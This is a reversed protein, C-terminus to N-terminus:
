PKSHFYTKMKKPYMGLLATRHLNLKKLFQWIKLTATGKVNGGATPLFGTEWCKTINANKIKAMRTSM